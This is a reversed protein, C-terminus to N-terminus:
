RIFRRIIETGIFFLGIIFSLWFLWAAHPYFLIGIVVWFLGVGALTAGAATLGTGIALAFVIIFLNWSGFLTNVLWCELDLFNNFSSCVAM